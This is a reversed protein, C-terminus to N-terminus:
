EDEKDWKNDEIGGCSCDDGDYSQCDDEHSDKVLSKPPLMGIKVLGDIVKELNEESLGLNCCSTGTSTHEDLLESLEKIAEKKKM